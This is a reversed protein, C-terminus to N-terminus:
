TGADDLFTGINRGSYTSGNASYGRELYTKIFDLRWTLSDEDTTALISDPFGGRLWLKQVDDINSAAYEIADIPFLELYSIRGQWHNM